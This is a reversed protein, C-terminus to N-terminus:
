NCYEISYKLILGFFIINGSIRTVLFNNVRAAAFKNKLWNEPSIKKEEKTEKVKKYEQNRQKKFNFIYIRMCMRSHQRTLSLFFNVWDIEPFLVVKKQGWYVYCKEDYNEYKKMNSQILLHLICLLAKLHNKKKFLVLSTFCNRWM